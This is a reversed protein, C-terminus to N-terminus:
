TLGDGVGDVGRKERGAASGVFLLREAACKRERPSLGYEEEYGVVDVIGVFTKADKGLGDLAQYEALGLEAFADTHNGNAPVGGCVALVKGALHNGKFIYGHRGGHAVDVACGVYEGHRGDHLVKGVRNYLRLSASKGHHSGSHASDPLHHALAGVAEEDGRGVALGEALSQFFGYLMGPALVEGRCCAEVRLVGVIGGLHRLAIQCKVLSLCSSM